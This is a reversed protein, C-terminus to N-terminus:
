GSRLRDALAQRKAISANIKERQATTPVDVKM